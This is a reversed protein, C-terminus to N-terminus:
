PGGMVRRASAEAREQRRKRGAPGGVAGIRDGIEVPQDDLAGIANMEDGAPRGRRAGVAGAVREVPHAEVVLALGQADAAVAVGPAAAGAGIGAGTVISSVVRM